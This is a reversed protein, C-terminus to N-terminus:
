IDEGELLVEKLARKIANYKRKLYSGKLEERVALNACQLFKNEEGIIYGCSIDTGVVTEGFSNRRIYLDFNKDEVLKRIAPLADKFAKAENPTIEGLVRVQGKFNQQSIQEIKM